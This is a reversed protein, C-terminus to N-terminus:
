YKDFNKSNYVNEHVLEKNENNEKPDNEGNTNSAKLDSEEGYSNISKDSVTSSMNPDDTESSILVHNNNGNKTLTKSDEQKNINDAISVDEEISISGTSTNLKFKNVLKKLISIQEFLNQSSTSDRQVADSNSTIVDYIKSIGVGIKDIFSQQELSNNAVRNIINDINDINEIINSITRTTQTTIDSGENVKQISTTILDNTEQAAQQSRLSLNRVEEAVVAFGKGHIGARAAEVAANLALLNTQFAIDEIVKIVKSISNSSENIAKMATLMNAIEKNVSSTNEKTSLTIEKAKLTDKTSEKTTIEIDKTSEVLSSAFNSQDVTGKALNANSESIQRSIDSVEEVLKNVQSIMYNYSSVIHNISNRIPIFDGIYDRKIVVTLDGKSVQSLTDSIDGVYSNLVNITNNLMEKMDKYSGKYEGVVKSDLNGECIASLSNYIEKFPEEISIIVENLSNGIEAWSNQYNFTDLRYSLDGAITSSALSNLDKVVLALNFQLKNLINTIIEKKGNHNKISKNFLGKSYEEICELIEMTDNNTVNLMNNISNCLELYKGELFDSNIKADLNGNESFDITTEEIRSIITLINESVISLKNYLLDIENKSDIKELVTVKGESIDKAYNSLLQIKSIIIRSIYFSIWTLILILLAMVVLAIILNINYDHHVQDTLISVQYELVDLIETKSDKMLNLEPIIRENYFQIALNNQTVDGSVIYNYVYDNFTRNAEKIAMMDTYLTELKNTFDNNLFIHESNQLESLNSYMLELAEFQGNIELLANNFSIEDRNPILMEATQIAIRDITYQMNIILDNSISVYNNIIEEESERREKLLFINAICYAMIILFMVLQSFILTKIKMKKIYSM